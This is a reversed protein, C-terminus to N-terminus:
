LVTVHNTFVIPRSKADILHRSNKVRGLYGICRQSHVPIANFWLSFESVWLRVNSSRYVLIEDSWAGSSEDDEQNRSPNRSPIRDKLIFTIRWRKRMM